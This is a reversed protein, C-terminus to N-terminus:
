AAFQRPTMGRAVRLPRSLVFDTPAGNITAGIRQTSGGTPEAAGVAGDGDNAWTGDLMATADPANLRMVLAGNVWVRAQGSAPRVAAVIHLVAGVVDLSPLEAEGDVGADDDPTADGAAFYLTGGAVALKVGSTTDGFTFVIGEAAEGTVTLSVAFTVASVRDPFVDDTAVDEAEVGLNHSAWLGAFPDARERRRKRAIHAAVRRAITPM